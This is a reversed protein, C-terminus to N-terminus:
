IPAPLAVKDPGATFDAAIQSATMAGAYIRFEDISGGLGPDPYLSKGLWCHLDNVSSLLKGNLPASGALVGNTYLLELSNVTDYVVALHGSYGDLLFSSFDLFAEGAGGGGDSLAVRVTTAGSHPTFFIYSLGNAGPSQNGFDFIRAWNPIAAGLSVWTELTVA